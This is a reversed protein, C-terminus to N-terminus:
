KKLKWGSEWWTRNTRRGIPMAKETQKPSVALTGHIEHSSDKDTKDALKRDRFFDSFMEYKLM